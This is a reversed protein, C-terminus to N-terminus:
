LGGLIENVREVMAYPSFPKTIYDVCNLGWGEREPIERGIATLIIVPIKKSKENDKLRRYVDQGSIKPMKIDLITLDLTEELALTLAREGDTATLVQYGDEELVFKIANLINPEDDAVLIKKGRMYQNDERATYIKL